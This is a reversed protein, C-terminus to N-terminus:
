PLGSHHVCVQLEADHAAQAAAAARTDWVEASAGRHGSGYGTGAAWAAPKARYRLAAALMVAHRPHYMSCCTCQGGHVMHHSKVTQHQQQLCNSSWACENNETKARKNTPKLAQM